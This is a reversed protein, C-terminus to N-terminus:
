KGFNLDWHVQFIAEENETREKDQPCSLIKSIKNKESKTFVGNRKIEEIQEKLNKM